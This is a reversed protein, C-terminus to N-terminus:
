AMLTVPFVAPEPVRVPTWRSESICARGFSRRMSQRCLWAVRLHLQSDRARIREQKKLGWGKGGLAAEQRASKECRDIKWM